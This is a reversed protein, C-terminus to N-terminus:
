VLYKFENNVTINPVDKITNTITSNESKLVLIIGNSITGINGSVELITFCNDINKVNMDNIVDLINNILITNHKDNEIAITDIAIEDDGISKTYITQSKRM